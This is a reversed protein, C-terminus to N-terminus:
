SNNQRYKQQHKRRQTAPCVLPNRQHNSIGIVLAHAREGIGPVIGRQDGLRQALDAERQDASARLEVEVLRSEIAGYLGEAIFQHAGIDRQEIVGAV